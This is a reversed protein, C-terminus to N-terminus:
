KKNRKAELMRVAQKYSTAPLGSMLEIGWFELFGARNAEVEDILANLDAVQSESIYQTGAGNGDDDLTADSSVLGTIAQFTALELYTVTSKIQQIPNKQGSTDAPAVMSVSEAHGQVHTMVCTVKIGQSQDLEWKASLGHRSLEPNVTNVFNGLSSYKSSYQKNLMDKVIVPPNAKFNSMAVVYAKKAENSDWREKLDMLKELQEMSAGKSIALNLMDLPTVPQHEPLVQVEQKKALDNM